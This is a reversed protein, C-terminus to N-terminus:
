SQDSNAPQTSVDTTQSGAWPSEQMDRAFLPQVLTSDQEYAQKDAVKMGGVWPVVTGLDKQRLIKARGMYQESTKTYQVMLSRGLRIDAKQLYRTALMECCRAAAGWFNAEVLIAQAIEEDALTLGDTRNVVDGIELRIQDREVTSLTTLTYSWTLISEM